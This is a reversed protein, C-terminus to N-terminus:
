QSTGNFMQDLGDVYHKEELHQAHHALRQQQKILQESQISSTNGNNCANCKDEMIFASSNSNNISNNSNNNASSASPVLTSTINQKFEHQQLATVNYHRKDFYTNKTDSSSSGASAPSSADQQQLQALRTQECETVLAEFLDLDNISGLKAKLENHHDLIPYLIKFLHSRPMYLPVHWKRVYQLYNRAIVICDINGTNSSTSTNNNRTSFLAPYALLTEASMVAVAGTEQMCQHVHEMTLINGNAILPINYKDCVLEKVMKIQKWDALGMNHGKQDRTRGHVALMAINGETILREAYKLTLNVDPFVRIKCTIPIPLQRDLEALMSCVLDQEEMLFSGYHGRKAIGQPCGLNLDFASVNNRKAFYRMKAEEDGNFHSAPLAAGISKKDHRFDESLLIKGARVLMEASHGCFQVFLPSDGECTSFQIKRYNPDNSWIKSHFMPTYALESGYERCLLRFPLEGQDVMPAVVYRPSGLSKYFDYGKLKKKSYDVNPNIVSPQQQESSMTKLLKPHLTRSKNNNPFTTTAFLTQQQQSQDQEATCTTATVFSRNTLQKQKSFFISCIRTRLNPAQVLKFM